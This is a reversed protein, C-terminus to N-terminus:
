IRPKNPSSASILLNWNFGLLSMMMMMMMVMIIVPFAQHSLCLFKLVCSKTDSKECAFSLTGPAESSKGEYPLSCLNL